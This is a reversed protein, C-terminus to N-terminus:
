LKGVIKNIQKIASDKVDDIATRIANHTIEAKRSETMQRVKEKEGNMM